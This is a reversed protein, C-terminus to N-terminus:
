RVKAVGASMDDVNTNVDAMDNLANVYMNNIYECMSNLNLQESSLEIGLRNALGSVMFYYTSQASNEDEEIEAGAIATSIIMGAIEDSSMDKTIELAGVCEDLSSALEFYSELDDPDVESFKSDRISIKVGATVLDNYEDVSMNIAACYPNAFELSDLFLLGECDINGREISVIRLHDVHTLSEVFGPEVYDCSLTLERLDEMKSVSAYEDKTFSSVYLELSKLAPAEVLVDKSSSQADLDLVGDVYKNRIFLHEMNNCYKVWSLDETTDVFMSTIYNFDRTTLANNRVYVDGKFRAVERGVYGSVVIGEESDAIVHTSGLYEDESYKPDEVGHRSVFTRNDIKIYDEGLTGFVLNSDTESGNFYDGDDNKEDVLEVENSCGSFMSMAITGALFPLLVREKLGRKGVNAKEHSDNLELVM